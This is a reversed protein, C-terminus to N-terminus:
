RPRGILLYQDGIDTPDHPSSTKPPRANRDNTPASASDPRAGAASETSRCPGRARSIATSPPSPAKKRAPYVPTRSATVLRGTQDSVGRSPRRKRTEALEIAAAASIRSPRQCPTPDEEIAGRRG